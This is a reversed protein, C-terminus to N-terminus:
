QARVPKPLPANAALDTQMKSVCINFRKTFQMPGAPNGTVANQEAKAADTMALAVLERPAGTEAIVRNGVIAAWRKGTERVDVRAIDSALGRRQGDAVLAIVAVCAIDDQQTANFSVPPLIQQAVATAALILIALSMVSAM